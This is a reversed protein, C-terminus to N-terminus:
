GCEEKLENINIINRKDVEKGILYVLGAICFALATVMYDSSNTIELQWQWWSFPYFM